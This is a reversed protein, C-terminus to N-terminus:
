PVYQLNIFHGSAVSLNSATSFDFLQAEFTGSIMNNENHTIVITGDPDFGGSYTTTATSYLIVADDFDINYSGPELSALTMLITNGESDQGAFVHHDSEFTYDVSSTDVVFSNGGVLATWSMHTSDVAPPPTGTSDTPTPEEPTPEDKKCSSFALNLALTLLAILFIRTNKM